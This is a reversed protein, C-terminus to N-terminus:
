QKKSLAIYPFTHELTQKESECFSVIAINEKILFPRIYSLVDSYVDYINNKNKNRNDIVIYKKFPLPFFSVGVSPKGIKVGCYTAYKEIVNM